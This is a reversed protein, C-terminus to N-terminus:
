GNKELYLLHELALDYIATKKLPEIAAKASLFDGSLKMLWYSHVLMMQESLWQSGMDRPATGGGNRCEHEFRFYEMLAQPLMEWQLDFRASSPKPESPIEAGLIRNVRPIFQKYLHLSAAVHTYRGIDLKLWFAMAEQLTTWEYFNIASGWMIDMSRSFVLLDLKGDRATFVLATTCPVDPSDPNHDCAPSFLTIQARRSDIDKLITNRIASLQDIGKWDRIRPGYAGPLKGHVAFSAMRPLYSEIFELDDRGGLVWMTEASLAFVNANRYPLTPLRDFPCDIEM